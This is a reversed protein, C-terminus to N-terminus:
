KNIEHYSAVYLKFSLAQMRSTKATCNHKTNLRESQNKQLHLPLYVSTPNGHQASTQYFLQKYIFISVSSQDTASLRSQKPM